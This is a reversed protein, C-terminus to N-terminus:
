VISNIDFANLISQKDVKITFSDDYLGEMGEYTEINKETVEQFPATHKGNKYCLTEEKFMRVKESAAELAAKACLQALKIATRIGIEKPTYKAEKEGNGWNLNQETQDYLEEATPLKDM